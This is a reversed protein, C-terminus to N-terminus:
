PCACSPSPAGDNCQVMGSVCMPGGIGCQVGGHYSCCGQLSVPSGCVNQSSYANSYGGGCGTNVCSAAAVGLVSIAVITGAVQASEQEEVIKQNVFDRFGEFAQKDTFSKKSVKEGYYNLQTVIETSSRNYYDNPNNTNSAIVKPEMCDHFTAYSKTWFGCDSMSKGLSAYRGQCATLTLACVLFLTATIFIPKKIM